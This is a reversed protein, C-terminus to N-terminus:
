TGERKKWPLRTSASMPIRMATKTSFTRAMQSATSPEAAGIKMPQKISYWNM